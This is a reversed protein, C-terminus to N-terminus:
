GFVIIILIAMIKLFTFMNCTKSIKSTEPGLAILLRVLLVIERGFWTELRKNINYRYQKICKLLVKFNIESFITEKGSIVSTTCTTSPTEPTAPVATTAPVAPAMVGKNKESELMASHRREIAYLACLACCVASLVIITAILVCNVVNGSKKSSEKPPVNEVTPIQPSENATPCLSRKSPPRSAVHIVDLYIHEENQSTNTAPQEEGMSRSLCHLCFKTNLGQEIKLVKEEDDAQRVIESKNWIKGWFIIM